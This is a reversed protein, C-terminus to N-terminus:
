SLLSELYDPINEPEPQIRNFFDVVKEVFSRNPSLDLASFSIGQRDMCCFGYVFGNESPSTTLMFTHRRNNNFSIDIM